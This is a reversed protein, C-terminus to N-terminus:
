VIWLIWWFLFLEFNITSSVDLEHNVELYKGAYVSKMSDIQSTNQCLFICAKPNLKLNLKWIMQFQLLELQFLHLTILHNQALLDYVMIKPNWTFDLGTWDLDRLKLGYPQQIGHSTEVWNKGTMKPDREQMPLPFTRFHGRGRVKRTYFGIYTQYFSTIHFPLLFVHINLFYVHWHCTWCLNPSTVM